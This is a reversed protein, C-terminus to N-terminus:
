KEGKKGFLKKSQSEASAKIRLVKFVEGLFDLWPGSAQNVEIGNIITPAKGTAQSYFSAAMETVKNAAIKEPAGLRGSDYELESIARLSGEPWLNLQKELAFLDWGQNYLANVAPRRMSHIHRALADTLKSLKRLEDMSGKLTAQRNRPFEQDKGIISATYFSHARAIIESESFRTGGELSKMAAILPKGVPSEHFECPYGDWGIFREKM